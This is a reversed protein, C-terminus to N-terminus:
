QPATRVEHAEVEHGAAQTLTPARDAAGTPLTARVQWGGRPRPGTVLTGGHLGVREAMGVLGQGGPRAPASGGRGNDAVLIQLRDPLYRLDVDAAAPGAHKRVNTLAEQVLRYVALGLAPPLERVPGATSLRVPLGAARTQEVLAVVDAVGPQPDLSLAEGDDRLIGLLRRMEALSQRGTEAVTQMAAVARDTSSRAVHAAGEAQAIMVSLGHAVIDHMERAIRAREAAAALQTEQDRERELRAARDELAALYSRRTRVNVGILTAATTWATLMVASGVAGSSWRLSGSVLGIEVVAAALLTRRLTERSAVTYIAVLIALDAPLPRVDTLLQVLGVGIVAAFAPVTAVRRWVLPLCLGASLLLMGVSGPWTRGLGRILVPPVAILLVLATLAGDVLLPHARLYSRPDVAGAYGAVPARRKWRLDYAAPRM